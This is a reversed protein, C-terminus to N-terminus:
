ALERPLLSLVTSLAVVVVVVLPWQHSCRCCCCCCCCCCVRTRVTKDLREINREQKHQV